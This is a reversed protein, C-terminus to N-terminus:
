RHEHLCKACHQCNRRARLVVPNTLMSTRSPLVCMPPQSITKASCMGDSDVYAHGCHQLEFTLLVPRMRSHRRHPGNQTRQPNCRQEHSRIRTPEKEVRADWCWAVRREARRGISPRAPQEIRTNSRGSAADLVLWANPSVSVVRHEGRARASVGITRCPDPRPVLLVGVTEGTEIHVRCGPPLVVMWTRTQSV